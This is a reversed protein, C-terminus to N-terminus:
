KKPKAFRDILGPLAQEVTKNINEKSTKFKPESTTGSLTVPVPISLSKENVVLNMALSKDMGVSGSFDLGVTGFTLLL